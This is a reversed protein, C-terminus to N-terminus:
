TGRYDNVRGHRDRHKKTKSAKPTHVATREEGRELDRERDRRAGGSFWRGGGRREEAVRADEPRAPERMGLTEQRRHDTTDYRPPPGLDEESGADFRDGSSPDIAPPRQGHKKLNELGKERLHKELVVANKTNCRFVADALDGLFPVLGVVFDVILNIYMTRQVNMPLGGDIKKCTNIVMVAMFSDLVDGIAPVLGIVSSWGFRIGCFNFLSNDLKYARRKVKTLVRADHESIGPPLAKPRKKTKRTPRGDLRTAPVEEFYPDEGGFRNAANEGLIKKAVFKAAM